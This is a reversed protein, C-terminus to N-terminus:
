GTIDILQASNIPIQLNKSLRGGVWKDKGLKGGIIKRGVFKELDRARMFCNDVMALSTPGLGEFAVTTEGGSVERFQELRKILKNITVKMHTIKILVQRNTM